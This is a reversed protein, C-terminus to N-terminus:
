ETDIRILDDADGDRDFRAALFENSLNEGLFTRNAAPGLSRYFLWQEDAVQVRFAIVQSPSQVQLREAVTLQRWTLPRRSRSPDLDIFMPVYLRAARVAHRIQLNGDIWELGGDSPAIRWEPLALPLVAGRWHDGVLRGEHTEEAPEFRVGATLPLQVRYEIEREDSGLIADALFLFRDERALIIQRQLVWGDALTAQLEQYDVDDDTHWCVEDWQEPPGLKQGDLHIEQQWPGSWVTQTGSALETQVSAGSRAVVLQISDRSWDSRFLALRGWESNASPEALIVRRRKKSRQGQRGPLIQDAIASDEDDGVLALATRFLDRDKSGSAVASFFPCGDKRTLQLARRIFWEFCTAAAPTLMPPTRDGHLAQCRTWCALLPRVSTLHEAAPLGNTDLLETLGQSLAKRASPWLAQCRPLEPFQYALTLPLEGALWQHPLPQHQLDLQPWSTALDLLLQLVEQWVAASLSSALRPLVYSWSVAELGLAWQGRGSPWEAVWAELRSILRATRSKGPHHCWRATKVILEKADDSIPTYDLGWPLPGDRKAGIVRWPDRPTKRERLHVVWQDWDEPSPQSAQKKGKGM